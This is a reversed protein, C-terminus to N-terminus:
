CDNSNNKNDTNNSVTTTNHLDERISKTNEFLIGVSTSSTTVFEPLLDLIHDGILALRHVKFHWSEFVEFLDVSLEDLYSGDYLVFAHEERM